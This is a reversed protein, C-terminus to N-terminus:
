GLNEAQVWMEHKTSWHLTPHKSNIKAAQLHSLVTIMLLVKLKVGKSKLKENLPVTDRSKQGETKKAL